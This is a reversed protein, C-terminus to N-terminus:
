NTALEYASVSRNSVQWGYQNDAQVYTGISGPSDQNASVPESKTENGSGAFLLSCIFFFWQSFM